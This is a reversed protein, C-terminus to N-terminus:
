RKAQPVLNLDLVVDVNLAICRTWLAEIRESVRDYFVQFQEPSPDKGYPRLMWEDHTLRLAPLNHELGRAFTTKGAGLYGHVMYVTAM